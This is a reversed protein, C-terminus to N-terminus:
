LIKTPKYDAPANQLRKELEDKKLLGKQAGVYEVVSASNIPGWMLAEEISKGQALASTFTSAFADGAGTRDYAHQPYIPMFWANGEHYTYAGNVGDTICVIKPGLETMKKLLTKIDSETDSLIRRSEEVNCFFIESRAYIDKLKEVGLRMQFTGPQFALKIEPHAVLYSAINTHYDLSHDSLSSLYIWQPSGIEPLTYPYAQHKVLITREVDYWLVYHYNSEMGDHITIFDTMVGDNAMSEIMEKGNQDSGVDSVLAAKLGLRAAAVAANASNGVAKVIEVSDYPIKEGFPLTITCNQHNIDCHVTAEKLRIFADTVMDGIALFQIHENM